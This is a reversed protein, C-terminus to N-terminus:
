LKKMKGKGRGDGRSPSGGKAGVHEVAGTKVELTIEPEITHLNDNSCTLVNAKAL